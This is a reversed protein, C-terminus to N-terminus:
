PNYYFTFPKVAFQYIQLTEPDYFMAREKVEWPRVDQRWHKSLNLMHRKYLLKDHRIKEFTNQKLRESRKDDAVPKGKRFFQTGQEYIKTRQLIDLGPLSPEAIFNKGNNIAPFFPSSKQYKLRGPNIIINFPKPGLQYNPIDKLAIVENVNEVLFMSAPEYAISASSFYLADGNDPNTWDFGDDLSPFNFGESQKVVYSLIKVQAFEQTYSERTNYRTIQQPNELSDVIMTTPFDGNPVLPGSRKCNNPKEILVAGGNSLAAGTLGAESQYSYRKGIYLFEVKFIPSTLEGGFRKECAIKRDIIVTENGVQIEATFHMMPANGTIMEIYQWAMRGSHWVILFGVFFFPAAIVYHWWKLRKLNTRVRDRM